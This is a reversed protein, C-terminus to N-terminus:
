EGVEREPATCGLGLGDVHHWARAALQYPVQASVAVSRGHRFGAHALGHTVPPPILALPPEAGAVMM